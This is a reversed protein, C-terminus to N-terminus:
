DVPFAPMVEDAFLGVSQLSEELTLDGFAFRGLVYNVGAEETEALLRERVTSASGVLCFGAADAADFEAPIPLPIRRGHASWLHVLSGYWAAYARAAIRRAERDSDAVVAHRNMGLLPLADEDRGADAWHARYADTITRTAEAPASCVVNMGREATWAVTELREVGYWLPPHPRQAPRLEIPADDFAFYRGEYTLRDAELGRLLVDLVERFLAPAEDPNVLFYGLEIPSIGRGVGLELRGGSLQDLM